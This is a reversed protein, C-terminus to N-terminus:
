PGPPTVFDNTLLSSVPPERKIMGQEHMWDILHGVQAPSTYGSESLLPLTAKVGAETAQRDAEPNSEVASEIANVTGKPDKVAAATGRNVAAVFARIMQPDESVRDARAILVLEDYAPVGLNQVRTIVPKLGRSELEAGELNWSAGFIADARGSALASVSKYGVSKVKVDGLTLGGRALVSRLFEKQFPLDPIAITKGRLDAIGGIHAGKLWIMAATPQSVLSGVIVIPAGKEEALVVQPTYSVAIDDAGDVIDKVSVVPNVPVLTLVEGFGADALYGRKEAMVIGATEPGEWGNLGVVIEQDKKSVKPITEATEAGSGGGCGALLATALGVALM